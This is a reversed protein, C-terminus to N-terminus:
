SASLSAPGVRVPVNYHARFRKAVKKPFLNKGPKKGHSPHETEGVKDKKLPHQQATNGFSIHNYWFM